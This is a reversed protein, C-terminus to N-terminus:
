RKATASRLCPVECSRVNSFYGKPFQPTGKGHTPSGNVQSFNKKMALFMKDRFLNLALRARRPTRSQGAPFHKRTRSDRRATQRGAAGPLLTHVHGVLSHSM